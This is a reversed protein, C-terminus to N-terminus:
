NTQNGFNRRIYDILEQNDENIRKSKELLKSYEEKMRANERREWPYMVFYIFLGMLILSCTFIACGKILEDLPKKRRKVRRPPNNNKEFKTVQKNIRGLRQELKALNEESIVIEKNDEM